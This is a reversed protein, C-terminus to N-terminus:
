QCKAILTETACGFCLSQKLDGCQGLDSLQSCSQTYSVPPSGSGGSPDSDFDVEYYKAGGSSVTGVLARAVESDYGQQQWQVHFPRGHTIAAAVCDHAASFASPQDALTLTGCSDAGQDSLRSVVDAIACSRGSCGTMAAVVLILLYAVM